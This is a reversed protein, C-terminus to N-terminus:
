SDWLFDFIILSNVLFAELYKQTNKLCEASFRKCGLFLVYFVFSKGGSKEIQKSQKLHRKQQALLLIESIAQMQEPRLARNLAEYWSADVKALDAFLFKNINKSIKHRFVKKNIGKSQYVDHFTIYEDVTQPDDDDDLPTTYSELATEDIENSLEDDANGDSDDDDDDKIIDTFDYNHNAGKEKIRNALNSLFNPNNEDLDDEDSSLAEECDDDDDESEEEEAEQARVQYARKLGEFLLILAPLIRGVLENLVPPRAEGMSMLTCLGLVCLKRDHIRDFDGGM